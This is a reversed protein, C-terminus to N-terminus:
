RKPADQLFYYVGGRARRIHTVSENNCDLHEFSAEKHYKPVSAGEWICMREKELGPLTLSTFQRLAPGHKKM